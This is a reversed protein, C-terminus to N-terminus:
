SKVEKVFKRKRVTTGTNGGNGGGGPRHGDLASTRFFQWMDFIIAQLFSIGTLLWAFGAHDRTQNAFFLAYAVELVTVGIFSVGFKYYNWVSWSNGIDLGDDLSNTDSPILRGLMNLTVALSIQGHLWTLEQRQLLFFVAATMLGIIAGLVYPSSYSQLHKVLDSANSNQAALVRDFAAGSAALCFASLAGQITMEKDLYDLFPKTSETISANTM